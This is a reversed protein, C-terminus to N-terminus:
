ESVGSRLCDHITLLGVARSNKEAVVLCTIGLKSMKELAVTALETVHTTVPESGSLIDKAQLKWLQSVNRRMDGDTIVGVVDGEKLVIAVGFGKESMTIVVEHMPANVEVIPLKNGRHMIDGVTLLQAGLKGGPHYRRFDEPETQLLHSVGVALADGIALALTTSTTPALGNICAEKLEGYGIVIESAKGLTSYDNSTISIIPLEYHRCYALLDVLENTEGSNSLILVVSDDHIVGLDGHSAESPHLYVARKGLSRFTSAIKRAIHGSKGIGAVILPAKSVSILKIANHICKPNQEAFNSLADAEICFVKKVVSNLNNYKNISFNSETQENQLM